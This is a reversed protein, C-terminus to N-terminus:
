RLISDKCKFIRLVKFGMRELGINFDHSREINAQHAVAKGCFAEVEREDKGIGVEFDVSEQLSRWCWTLFNLFPLMASDFKWVRLM